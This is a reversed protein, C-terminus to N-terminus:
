IEELFVGIIDNSSNRILTSRFKSKSDIGLETIDSKQVEEGNLGSLLEYYGGKFELLAGLNLYEQNYRLKIM